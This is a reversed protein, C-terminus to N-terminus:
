GASDALERCFLGLGSSLRAPFPRPAPVSRAPNFILRLPRQWPQADSQATVFGTYGPRYDYILYQVTLLAGCAGAMFFLYSPSRESRRSVTNSAAPLRM